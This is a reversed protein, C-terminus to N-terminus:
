FTFFDNLSRLTITKEEGMDNKYKIDHKLSPIKGLFEQIKYYTKANINEDVFKKMNEKNEKTFDYVTDGEFYNVLCDIIVWDVMSDENQLNNDYLNATPYRLTFGSHDGTKIVKDEPATSFDIEVENLDVKFDREKNDDADTYVLEIINDVSIARIKLFLYEIDFITLEGINLDHVCNNVVQKVARLKESFDDTEKAMLLIKEEKVLMPRVMIDKKTSPVIMKFLPQEIKPLM